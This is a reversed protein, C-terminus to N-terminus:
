TMNITFGTASRKRFFYHAHESQIFGLKLSISRLLKWFERGAQPMGYIGKLLKLVHGKPVPM